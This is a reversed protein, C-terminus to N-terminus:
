PTFTPTETPLPAETPLETPPIAPETSLIAESSLSQEIYSTLNTLFWEDSVSIVKDGVIEYVGYIANLAIYDGPDVIQTPGHDKHLFLLYSQGLKYSPESSSKFRVQDIEGVFIRVRVVPEKFDGKLIKDIAILHDTVISMDNELIISVTLNEPIDGKPSKWKSPLITDVKGIIILESEEILDDITKNELSGHVTIVIPETRGENPGSKGSFFIPALLIIGFVLVLMAAIKKRM